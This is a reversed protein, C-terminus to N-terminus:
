GPLHEHRILDDYTERDRIIEFSSGDVLVECPRPRSNYQSSMSFGYAGASFVALLDGPQVPPLARDRAFCDSTECVPGVIDFRSGASPEGAPPEGDSPEGVPPETESQVPWIQHFADYFAPRILDNMGADCIVYQKSGSSKLYLVKMVLIGANGILFRGPEMLMRCGSRQILPVIARAYDAPNATEGPRYDIGFGGGVNLYQIEVGKRRLRDLLDLVKELAEVYPEVTRIPSGLHVHLGLLRLSKMTGAQASIEAALDAALDLDIGFKTEKKGTTTHRHTHPDVDPNIRLAVPAVTEMREAIAAITELEARSEVNFMLIGSRIAYEIENPTKGVGAYVIRSPDAEVTLARFLEGGSVIDFGAGANQLVALLALNSNAKVAFCIIPDVQAFAEQLVRFHRRLTRKSYLYCPTGVEEAIRAVSAEEGFLQGQSYRFYHM